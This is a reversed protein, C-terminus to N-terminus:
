AARRVSPPPPAESVLVPTFAAARIAEDLKELVLRRTFADTEDQLFLVEAAQRVAAALRNAERCSAPLQALVRAAHSTLTAYRQLEEHTSPM